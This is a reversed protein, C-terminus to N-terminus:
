PRHWESCPRCLREAEHRGLLHNARLEVAQDSSWIQRLTQNGLHGLPRFASYDQDCPVVSGDAHVLCRDMIRRCPSRQPPSMDMVGLDGLREGFHSFGIVSACGNARIWGDFFDDLEGLNEACKTMLPVIIPQAQRAAHRARVVRDIASRVAELDAGGSLRAYTEPAWADVFFAVVDVRHEILAALAEESLSQGSTYVCLGFLGSRRLIALAEGFRPHRVPDGHGGLVVLSDDQTSLEAALKELLGLNLPGRTPVRSGRPRLVTDPLMDDTTLEIEVERPLPESPKLRSDILWRGITEAEGTARSHLLAAMTRLSSDTDACLRGRSCRIAEACVFCCTKLALDMAPDDPKYSLTWGPPVGSEALKELLHNEFVTPALGPPAQAFTMRMDERYEVYHRIMADTLAPDIFAAGPPVVAVADAELERGLESLVATDTYEDFASSGGLGGRWSELSWKRAVRVLSRYPPDRDPRIRLTVSAGNLLQQVAPLQSHPCLVVVDALERCRALRRVTQLLVPDDGLTEAIRSRTGLPTTELNADVAAIIKM